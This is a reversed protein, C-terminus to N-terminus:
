LEQLPNWINRTQYHEILEELTIDVGMIEHTIKSKYNRIAGLSRHGTIVMIDANSCGCCVLALVKAYPETFKPYKEKLDNLINGFHLNAYQFADQWFGPEPKYEKLLKKIRSVFKDDPLDQDYLSVMEQLLAQQRTLSDRMKVSMNAIELSHSKHSQLSERLSAIIERESRNKYRLFLLFLVVISLVSLTILMMLMVKLRTTQKEVERLKLIFNTETEKLETATSAMLMDHAINDAADDHKQYKDMDGRTFDIMALARFFLLSDGASSVVSKDLHILASDIKGAGAFAHALSIHYRSSATVSSQAETVKSLIAIAKPYDKNFTHCKGITALNACIYNMDNQSLSKILAPLLYRWDVEELAISSLSALESLSAMEYFSQNSEKLHPLARQYSEMAQNSAVFEYQYLDAIRFLVYGLNAHDDPRAATEASKFWYMASDSQGLETMVCGKYILSRIRYDYGGKNDTVYYDVALNIASDSTAPIYAKYKAQTLLLAHYARNEPDRLSDAPIAELLAAASDPAVAILSDLEVLRPSVAREQRCSILLLLIILTIASLHKMM